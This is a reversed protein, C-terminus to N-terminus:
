PLGLAKRAAARHATTVFLKVTALAAAIVAADDTYGIPVLADPIADVPLIFYAIAGAILARAWMPTATDIMAFYMAVVDVIFDIKGILPRIKAWFSAPNIDSPRATPPM